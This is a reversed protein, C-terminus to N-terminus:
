YFVSKHRVSLCVSLRVSVPGHSTGRICLMARYFYSYRLNCFVSLWHRSASQLHWFHAISSVTVHHSLWLFSSSFLLWCCHCCNRTWIVCYFANLRKLFDSKNCWWEIEESIYHWLCDMVAVFPILVYDVSVNIQNQSNFIYFFVETPRSVKLVVRVVLHGRRGASTQDIYLWRINTVAAQYAAECVSLLSEM